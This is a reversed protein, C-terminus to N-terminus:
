GGKGLSLHEGGSWLQAFSDPFFLKALSCARHQVDRARVVAARCCSAGRLAFPPLVPEGRCPHVIDLLPHLPRPAILLSPSVGPRDIVRAYECGRRNPM